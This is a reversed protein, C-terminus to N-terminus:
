RACTKSLKSAYKGAQTDTETLGKLFQDVKVDNKEVVDMLNIECTNDRINYYILM